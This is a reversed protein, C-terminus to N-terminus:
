DHTHIPSGEDVMRESGAQVRDDETERPKEDSSASVNRRKRSRDEDGAKASRQKTNSVLKKSEQVEEAEKANVFHTIERREGADPM